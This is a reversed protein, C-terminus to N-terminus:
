WTVGNALLWARGTDTVDISRTLLGNAVLRERAEVRREKPCSPSWCFSAFDLPEPQLEAGAARLYETEFPTLEIPSSM